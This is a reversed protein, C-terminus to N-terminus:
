CMPQLEYKLGDQSHFAAKVLEAIAPENLSFGPNQYNALALDYDQFKAYLYANDQKLKEADYVSQEPRTKLERFLAIIPAPLTFALRWTIFVISDTFQYHPGHSWHAEVIEYM